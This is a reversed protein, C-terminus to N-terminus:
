FDRILDVNACRRAAAPPRASRGLALAARRPLSAGAPRTVPPRAGRERGWAAGRGVWAGEARPRRLGRPRPESSPKRKRAFKRWTFRGGNVAAGIARRPRIGLPAM